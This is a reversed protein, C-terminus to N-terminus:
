KIRMIKLGQQGDPMTYRKAVQFVPSNSKEEEAHNEYKKLYGTKEDVCLYEVTDYDVDSTVKADAGGENKGFCNTTYIDGLLVSILRPYMAGKAGSLDNKKMDFRGPIYKDRIMAFDKHSQKREDYLKEENYILMWEGKGTLNVEGTAYDYKAFRGNEIVDGMADATPLQALIQGTVIGSLHNPEVQGFGIRTINAM